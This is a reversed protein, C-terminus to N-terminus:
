RCLPCHVLGNENCKGSREKEDGVVVKRSGGCEACLVFRGGGCGECDRRGAGQEIRVYRLMRGFRGYDNLGELEEVGGLLRGCLFVWPVAAAEEGLLERLESLFEGHLAMDREDSVMGHSDLVLRAHNCDKYTRRVGGLSTTYVVLRDGGQSPCKYPFDSLPDWRPAAAKGEKEREMKDRLIFINEKVSRVGELVVPGPKSPESPPKRDLRAVSKVSGAKQLPPLPQSSPVDPAPAPAREEPVQLEPPAPPSLTQDLQLLSLSKSVDVWSQPADASDIKDLKELFPLPLHNVAHDKLNYPPSHHIFVWPEEVSNVDFLSFSTPPPRYVDVRAETCGM